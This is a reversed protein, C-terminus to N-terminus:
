AAHVDIRHYIAPCAQEFAARPLVTPGAPETGLLERLLDRTPGNRETAAFDLHVAPAAFRELLVKLCNGRSPKM